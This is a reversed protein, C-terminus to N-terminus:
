PHTGPPASRAATASVPCYEHPRSAVVTGSADLVVEPLLSHEVHVLKMRRGQQSGGAANILDVSPSQGVPTVIRIEKKPLETKVARVAPVFDSDATILLALDFVNRFADITLQVALNVDSEKEEHDTWQAGCSFCGRDKRKFRGMLPTVGTATLARLYERHRRYSDPLWTAFASCYVVRLLDIDPAPAFQKCLAWLDLWKLHPTRLGHIGHYLNFGDVYAVARIPM